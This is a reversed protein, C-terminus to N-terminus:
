VDDFIGTVLLDDGLRGVSQFRLGRISALNGAAVVPVAHPTRLLRPAVIWVLRDVLRLQLLNGAMTPGGECLVSTLGRTHLLTLAQSIDLQTDAADGTYLVDAIEELAAFTSRAGAPALVLTRAYGEQAAFILSRPDVGATECFVARVYPRRRYHPPRVTLQPNDVRVTGAGAAVVDHAIRMERVYERAQAGTLWEQRGPQSAIFGDASMAMKLTVFPRNSTIARAFPAIIEKAAAEDAIDVPVGHERLYAIGSGATKPNPDPTGIVARVIGANVVAHACPPTRGFHNCPELSVYLTAARARDGAQRLALVEAHPEGARHHYGEGVISEGAVVVAGVPPNPATSGV